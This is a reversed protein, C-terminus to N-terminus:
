ATISLKVTNWIFKVIEAGGLYFWIWFAMASVNLVTSWLYVRERSRVCFRVLLPTIYPGVFLASFILAIVEGKNFVSILIKKRRKGKIKEEIFEELTKETEGSFHIVGVTMFVMAPLYILYARWGLLVISSIYFPILFYGVVSILAMLGFFTIKYKKM